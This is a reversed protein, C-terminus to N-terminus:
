TSTKCHQTHQYYLELHKCSIGGESGTFWPSSPL